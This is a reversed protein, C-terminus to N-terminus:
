AKGDKRGDRLGKIYANRVRWSIADLLSQRAQLEPMTFGASVWRTTPFTDRAARAVRDARKTVEARTM